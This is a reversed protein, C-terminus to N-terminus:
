LTNCNCNQRTKAKEHIRKYINDNSRRINVPWPRLAVSKPRVSYRRQGCTRSWYGRQANQTFNLIDVSFIFMIRLSWDPRIQGANPGASPFPRLISATSSQNTGIFIISEFLSNENIYSFNFLTYYKEYDIAKFIFVTIRSFKM